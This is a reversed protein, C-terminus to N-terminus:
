GVGSPRVMSSGPARAMRTRTADSGAIVFGHREYLDLASSHTATVDLVLAVDNRDALECARGVLRDGVGLGPETAVDTVLWTTGAMHHRRAAQLSRVTRPAIAVLLLLLAAVVTAGLLLLGQLGAWLVVGLGGAFTAALAGTRWSSRRLDTM